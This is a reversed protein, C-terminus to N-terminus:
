EALPSRFTQEIVCFEYRGGVPRVGFITKLYERPDRGCAAEAELQLLRAEVEAPYFQLISCGDTLIGARALLRRDFEAMTSSDQRWTMYLRNEKEPDGRKRDPTPKALNRAYQVVPSGGGAAALEIEFFDLQQAYTAIDSTTFRIEWRQWPPIVNPAWRDVPGRQRHGGPPPGGTGSRAERELADLAPMRSTVVSTIAYLSMEIAPERLPEVDDAGPEEMEDALGMEEPTDDVPVFRGIRSPPKGLMLSATMWLTFLLLVAGGSLVLLAILLGAVRDYATVKL